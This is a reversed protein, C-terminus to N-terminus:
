GKSTGLVEALAGKNVMQINFIYDNHDFAKRLPNRTKLWGHGDTLWIFTAQDRLEDQLGRFDSATKDLKSGGSSYCNVEIVFLKGNSMTAFDFRRGEMGELEVGFKQKIDSASAQTIFDLSMGELLAECVNEMANGGRNKRGNSSLGAEVGITYDVLNHVGDKEFIRILGSHRIFRIANEIEDPSPSVSGFKFAEETLTAGNVTVVNYDSSKAGNRVILVPIMKMIEPYKGALYRFENDFDEKGLLYNMINLTSEINRTNTFVKNWDVFYEWDAVGPRMTDLLYEFTEDDNKLGLESYFNLNIM